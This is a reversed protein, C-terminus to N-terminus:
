MSSVMGRFVTNAAFFTGRRSDADCLVNRPSLAQQILQSAELNRNKSSKRSVIPAIGVMFFHFRSFPVFDHTFNRILGNYHLNPFRLYSTLASMSTSVFYNLDGYNPCTLKTTRFCIDYLAENDFVICSDVNEILHPVSLTNNYPEVIGDSKPSTFITFSEIIKDTFEERLKSILLTGM